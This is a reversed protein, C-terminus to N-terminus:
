IILKYTTAPGSGLREILKKEILSDLNRLTRSKDFGTKNDLERRTIEIEEKIIYYINTEDESLDLKDMNIVPLIISINDETIYFEPKSISNSYERNIRTIGTGFQEIIGLRFFIGSIIPNRLVSVSGFLYEDKSLGRPLGGPSRIEVRNEYMSIQTYSNVDWIRHVISNALAERFAERPILEKKVRSYGSVEEYQYYTEFVEIAEDYQLLLSKKSITKRYLIQNINRGFRVIDIGAFDLENKDALLEAAINYYGDKNYLNLTKLIDLNIKNVGLKEKLELGLKQFDLDQSSAVRDEYNINMGEISLRSLEYRDVELTSTDMRRYSKNKYYYPTNKGKFVELIIVQRDEMTKIEIAYKPLPDISDNIMHEIRLISDELDDIGVLNGEDDIGFIIRGDNYNAYASVTKLFTRSVNEKLELNFKEKREM